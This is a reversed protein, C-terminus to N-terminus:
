PPIIGDEKALLRWHSESWRDRRSTIVGRRSLGSVDIVLHKTRKHGQYEHRIISM